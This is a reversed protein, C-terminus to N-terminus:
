RIKFSGSNMSDCRLDLTEQHQDGFTFYAGTNWIIFWFQYALSTECIDFVTVHDSAVQKEDHISLHRTQGCVCFRFVPLASFIM